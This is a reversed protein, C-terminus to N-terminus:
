KETNGNESYYGYGNGYGYRYGYGYKYRGSYGYVGKSRSIDNLLLSLGTIGNARADAITNELIHKITKKHRVLIITIDSLQALSFSDSVAGLPASDIIIYDFRKRLGELLEKTKLSGALEAPNPPIPGAVIVSLNPHGSYQIIEDLTNQGILYTSVGIEGKINFDNYIKPKRLDFGVLVTKKGALSCVSALNISAFTKGEAPISSTILIVPSLTDKTFFQLRTRLNRFTEAVQSKPDNLVVTQYDRSSHIIHGAVPIDTRSKIDDESEIKNNFASLLILVLAPVALGALGAIAYNKAPTPRIMEKVIAPDIVENDPTNSAKAIQAEAQRQLLYTYINDNLKFKREIGLLERETQPLKRIESMLISLRNNVDRMALNNNNVLNRTNEELRAKANRIQSDVTAVYPNKSPGTGSMAIKQDAMKNLELVLNNLLPDNIGMVSPAVIDGAERNDALYGLLYRFYDDQMKMAAKQNDLEKAQEFLQQSQFSLDVVENNRRFNQLNVETIDLSDAISTLQRDIFDITNTAVQNKKDLTRQMYMELHKNLFLSAKEPCESQIELKVMSAEEDVSELELETSWSKVLAGYSNFRFLWEGEKYGKDDEEEKSNRPVIVFSFGEGEVQDGFRVQKDIELKDLEKGSKETLYNYLTIKDGTVESKLDMSGDNGLKITFTVGLPQPKSYDPMVIFPVESLKEQPGLIEDKYYSINFDLSHLTKSVLTQSSMILIQNQFNSYSPYYGFGSLIDNKGFMSGMGSQSQDEVLLSANVRYVKASYKNIFFAIGISVIFALVFWYWNGLFLYIYKMLDIDDQPPRMPRSQIPNNPPLPTTM